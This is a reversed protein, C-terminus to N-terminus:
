RGFPTRMTQRPYFAGQVLQQDFGAPIVGTTSYL